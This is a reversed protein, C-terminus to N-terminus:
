ASSSIRRRRRRRNVRRARLAEPVAVWDVRPFSEGRVCTLFARGDSGWGRVWRAEAAHVRLWQGARVIWARQRPPSVLPTPLEALARVCGEARLM